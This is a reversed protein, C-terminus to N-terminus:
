SSRFLGAAVSLSAMPFLNPVYRIATQRTAVAIATDGATSGCWMCAASGAGRRTRISMAACAANGGSTGIEEAGGSAAVGTGRGRGPGADGGSADIEYEGTGAVSFGSAM